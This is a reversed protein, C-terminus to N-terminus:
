RTPGRSSSSRGPLNQIPRSDSSAFMVPFMLRKGVQAKLEAHHGLRDDAGALAGRHLSAALDLLEDARGKAEAKTAGPLRAILVLDRFGSLAEGVPAFQGTLGVRSRVRKGETGVDFRRGQRHRLDRAATHDPRQRAHDQGRLGLVTGRPVALDVGTLAAVQGYGKSIAEDRDLV